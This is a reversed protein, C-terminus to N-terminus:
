QSEHTANLAPAKIKSVVFAPHSSASPPIRYTTPNSALTAARLSARALPRRRSFRPHDDERRESALDLLAYASTSARADGIAHDDSSITPAAAPPLPTRPPAQPM